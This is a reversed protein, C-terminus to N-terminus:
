KILEVILVDLARAIKTIVQVSPEHVFGGEIKTLTTYKVGSKMVLDDQTIRFKNGFKKINEGITTM